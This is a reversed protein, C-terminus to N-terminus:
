GNRSTSFRWAMIFAMLVIGAMVTIDLDILGLANSAILGIAAFVLGVAPNFVGVFGATTIVLFAIGPGIVAFSQERFDLLAGILITSESHRTLQYSYVQNTTNEGAAMTCLLSGSAGTSSTNCVGVPNGYGMRYAVLDFEHSEGSSDAYNCVITKTANVWSCNAQVKGYVSTWYTPLTLGVPMILTVACSQGAICYIPESPFTYEVNTSYEEFSIIKYFTTGNTFLSVTYQGNADTTGMAVMVYSGNSYYRLLHQVRNALPQAYQNQVTFQIISSIGTDLTYLPINTNTAESANLIYTRPGSTVNSYVVSVAATFNTGIQTNKCVLFSHALASTLVNTISNNGANDNGTVTITASASTNGLSNEDFYSFNAVTTFGIPCADGAAFYPITDNIGYLTANSCAFTTWNMGNSAPLTASAVTAGAVTTITAPGYALVSCNVADGIAAGFRSRVLGAASWSTSAFVSGNAPFAFSWTANVYPSFGSGIM